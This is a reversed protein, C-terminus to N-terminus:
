RRFRRRGRAGRASFEAAREESIVREKLEDVANFLENLANEDLKNQEMFERGSSTLRLRRLTPETEVLGLYLLLRVDESLEKSNPIQDVMIFTYKLGMKKENILLYVLNTLGRESIAGLRGIINLLKLKDPDKRVADLTAVPRAVIRLEKSTSTSSAQQQPKQPM